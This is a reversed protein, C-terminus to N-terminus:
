SRERTQELPPQPTMHYEEILFWSGDGTAMENRWVIDSPDTVDWIFRLRVPAGEPSEFILRDGDIRGAYVGAHGYNDAMTAVYGDSEPAWGAVWHLQWTLVHSGDALFQDQEYTGVIWGGDQISEHTGRGRATMEPTGPGMGGEHISGTWTVDPCFRRLAKMEPGPTIPQPVRDVERTMAM